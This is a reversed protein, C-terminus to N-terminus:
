VVLMFQDNISLVFYAARHIIILKYLQSFRKKYLLVILDVKSNNNKFTLQRVKQHVVLGSLIIEYHLDNQFGCFFYRDKKIVRGSLGKKGM